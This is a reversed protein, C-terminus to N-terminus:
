LTNYVCQVMTFGVSNAATITDPRTSYFPRLCSNMRANFRKMAADCTTPMDSASASSPPLESDSTLTEDGFVSSTPTPYLNVSATDQRKWHTCTVHSLILLLLLIKLM